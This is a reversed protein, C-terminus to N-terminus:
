GHSDGQIPPVLRNTWLRPTSGLYGWGKPQGARHKQQLEEILPAVRLWAKAGQADGRKKLLKARKSVYNGAGAGYLDIVLM